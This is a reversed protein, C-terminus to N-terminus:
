ERRGDFLERLVEAKEQQEKNKKSKPAARWKDIDELIETEEIGINLGSHCLYPKDKYVVRGTEPDAFAYQNTGRMRFDWRYIEQLMSGLVKEQSYEYDGYYIISDNIVMLVSQHGIEDMEEIMKQCARGLCIAALHFLRYNTRLNSKPHMFGISKNMVAKAEIREEKLSYFYDIERDLTYKSAKSLVTIEEEDSIEKYRPVKRNTKEDRKLYLNKGLPHGKWKRTDFVDKECLHGSVVYFAFPYEDTPEQRGKIRYFDGPRMSPLRGKISSPYHSSYDAKCVGKINKNTKSENIYYPEGPVCKRFEEGQTYGFAGFLTKGNNLEKFLTAITQMGLQGEHSFEGDNKNDDIAHWGYVRYQGNEKCYLKKYFGHRSVNTDVKYTGDDLWHRRVCKSKAEEGHKQLWEIKEEAETQTINQFIGEKMWEIKTINKSSYRM